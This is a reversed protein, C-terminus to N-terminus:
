LLDLSMQLNGAACLHGFCMLRAELSQGKSTGFSFGEGQRRVQDPAGGSRHRSMRVFAGNRSLLRRLRKVLGRRRPPLKKGSPPLEPEAAAKEPTVECRRLQRM